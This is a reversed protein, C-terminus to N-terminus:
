RATTQYTDVTPQPDASAEKEANLLLPHLYDPRPTGGVGCGQEWPIKTFEDASKEFDPNKALAVIQDGERASLRPSLHASGKPSAAVKERFLGDVILLGLTIFYSTSPNELRPEAQSIENQLLGFTTRTATQSFTWVLEGAAFLSVYQETLIQRLFAQLDRYVGETIVLSTSTIKVGAVTIWKIPKTPLIKEFEAFLKEDYALRGIAEWYDIM